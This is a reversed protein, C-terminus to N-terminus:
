FEAGPRGRFDPQQQLVAGDAGIDRDINGAIEDPRLRVRQALIKWGERDGWHGRIERRRERKRGGSGAQRLDSEERARRKAIEFRVLSAGEQTAGAADYTVARLHDDTDIQFFILAYEVVGIVIGCPDGRAEIEIHQHADIAFEATVEIEGREGMARDVVALAMADLHM